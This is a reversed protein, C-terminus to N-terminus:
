QLLHQNERSGLQYTHVKATM